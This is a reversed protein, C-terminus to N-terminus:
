EGALVRRLPPRSARDWAIEGDPSVVKVDTYDGTQSSPFIGAHLDELSSNRVCHNLMKKPSILAEAPQKGHHHARSATQLATAM